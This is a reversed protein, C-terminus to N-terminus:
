IRSVVFRLITQALAVIVLGIAAYLITNRAQATGDGGQSLIYKFGALILMVVSAIGAIWSLINLITRLVTQISIGQGVNGVGLEAIQADTLCRAQGDVHRTNPTTQCHDATVSPTLMTGAVLGVVALVTVALLSTKFLM